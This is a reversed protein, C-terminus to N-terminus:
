SRVPLATALMKAVDTLSLSESLATHSSAYYTFGDEHTYCVDPIDQAGCWMAVGQVTLSELPVSRQVAQDIAENLANYNKRGFGVILALAEREPKQFSVEYESGSGITVSASSSKVSTPLYRPYRAAPTLHHEALEKCGPQQAESQCKLISATGCGDLAILTILL